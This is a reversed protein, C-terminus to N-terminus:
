VAIDTIYKAKQYKRPLYIHADHYIFLALSTVDDKCGSMLRFIHQNTGRQYVHVNINKSSLFEKIQQLYNKCGETIEFTYRYRKEKEVYKCFFYGDGDIVGRLYHHMLSDNIDPLSLDYTKRAKVGLKNLDDCLANSNLILRCIQSGIKYGSKAVITTIEIDDAGIDHKFKEM